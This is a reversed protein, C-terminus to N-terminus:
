IPFMRQKGSSNHYNLPSFTLTTPSTMASLIRLSRSEPSLLSDQSGGHTPLQGLHQLCGSCPLPQVSDWVSGMTCANPCFVRTQGSPVREHIEAGSNVMQGDSARVSAEPESGPGGMRGPRATVEGGWNGPCGVVRCWWCHGGRHGERLKEMSLANARAGPM